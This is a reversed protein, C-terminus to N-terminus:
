RDGNLRVEKFYFENAKTLKLMNLIELDAKLRNRPRLATEVKRITFIAVIASCIAAAIM